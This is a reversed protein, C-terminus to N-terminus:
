FNGAAILTITDTYDPAAATTASIAAREKLVMQATNATGTSQAIQRITSDVGSGKANVGGTATADYAAAATLVGVGSGQTLTTIGMVYGETGATLTATTGPTTAAITNSAAVSILGPASDRAWAIWGTKANTNITATVGSTSTVAGSTLNTTFSDTNAGLAFNFTPPVVASVVISDNTVTRVAVTTTDSGVTITPHYEGAAPTTVATAFTLDDCYATTASLATVANITLTSGSVTFTHAGPLATAGTETPCTSVSDTQSAQAGILGSTGTWTTTDTGNFNIAVSTAGAAATKFVVRFTTATVATMRNIRIYSTTLTGAQAHHILAINGLVLTLVMALVLLKRLQTKL